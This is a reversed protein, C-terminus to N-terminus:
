VARRFAARGLMIALAAAAVTSVGALAAVAGPAIMATSNVLGMGGAYWAALAGARVRGSYGGYLPILKVWWTAILVWTWAALMGALVWRGATGGRELGAALLVFVAPFIAPTYWPAGGAAIGGFIAFLTTTSYATAAGFLLIGAMLVWEGPAPRKRWAARAYLAAAALALVLMGNLTASSFADFSNNATWLARRASVALVAGWPMALATAAVRGFGVESLTDMLGTFNGYLLRNRVYWPAAALLVPALFRALGSRRRLVLALALPIFALFYAKALLGAALALGTLAARRGSPAEYYAVAALLFIPCIAVALWDNAVHAAAGYLMQTSAVLFGAAYAFPAGLGLARGLALTAWVACAAGTVGCLIRLRWVRVPLAAGAWLRDFPALILYALPAQQAEYNTGDDPIRDGLSPPIAHLAAARRARERPDLRFYEAYTTVVPLNRQVLHSAPALELSARIEGSLGTRNLRPLRGQRAVTQVCGYHFPEDFGEWLPLLSAYVM